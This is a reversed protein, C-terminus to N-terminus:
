YSINRQCLDGLEKPNQFFSKDLRQFIESMMGEQFPSNEEFNFNIKPNIEQINQKIPQQKSNRLLPDPHFAVDPMFPNNNILRDNASNTSHISNTKGTVIKTRGPIEQTVDSPQNITQSIPDFKRRKSRARGQGM